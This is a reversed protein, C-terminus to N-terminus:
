KNIVSQAETIKIKSDIALDVANQYLTKNYSEKSKILFLEASNILREAKQKRQNGILKKEIISKLLFRTNDIEEEAIFIRQRAEKSLDITANIYYTINTINEPIIQSEPENDDSDDIDVVANGSPDNKCGIILVLSIILIIVLEKKRM